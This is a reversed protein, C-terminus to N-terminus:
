ERKDLWIALAILGAVLVGATTVAAVVLLVDGTAVVKVLGTVVVATFLRVAMKVIATKLEKM